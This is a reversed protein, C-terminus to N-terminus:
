GRRADQWTAPPSLVLRGATRAVRWGGVVETAVREGRAVARVRGVSATDVVYGDGVGSEALWAQVAAAAVVVPAAALEAANTPDLTSAAAAVFRDVEAFTDAQRVLVAVVDREAIDVLLPLLENRVRNRRHVPDANSPDSVPDLGVAHCVAETDRRRLDLLPRRPSRAIGAAGRPGAGRILNLLVTEARDDATHGTLAGAPLVRLRAERARAELNPGAEVEVREGWFGAGLRSAADAVVEAEGASEPRLGHDVHVATVDCGAAVALVLLAM